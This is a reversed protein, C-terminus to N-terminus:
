LCARTVFLAISGLASVFLLIALRTSWLSSRGRIMNAGSVILAIGMLLMAALVVIVLRANEASAAPNRLPEGALAAALNSALMWIVAGMTLSLIAGLQLVHWGRRAVDDDAFVARGCSPCAAVPYPTREGCFPSLCTRGRTTNINM